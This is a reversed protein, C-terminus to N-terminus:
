MPLSSQKAIAFVIESFENTIEAIAGHMVRGFRQLAGTPNFDTV